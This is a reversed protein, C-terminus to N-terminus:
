EFETIEASEEATPTEDDMWGMADEAWGMGMGFMQSMITSLPTADTPEQLSPADTLKTTTDKGTLTLDLKQSWVVEVLNPNQISITGNYNTKMTNKSDIEYSVDIDADIAMDEEKDRIAVIIDYTNKKKGSRLSITAEPETSAWVVIDMGRHDITVVVNDMDDIKQIVLAVDDAARVVLVGQVTADDTEIDAVQQALFTDKTIDALLQKLADNRLKVNYATHGDHTTQGLNELLDYTTMDINVINRILTKTSEAIDGLNGMEGAMEETTDIVMWQNMLWQAMAQIMASQQAQAPGMDLTLNSINLYQVPLSEQIKQFFGLDVSAKFPQDAANIDVGFDISGSSTNTDQNTIMDAEITLMGGTQTDVTKLEMSSQSQWVGELSQLLYKKDKESQEITVFAKYADDFSMDVPKTSGCATVVLAVAGLSLLTTLKKM